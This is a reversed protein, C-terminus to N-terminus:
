VELQGPTYFVREVQEMITSKYAYPISSKMKKVLYEMFYDYAVATHTQKNVATPHKKAAAIEIEKSTRLSRLMYAVAYTLNHNGHMAYWGIIDILSSILMNYGDEGQLRWSDDLNLLKSLDIRLIYDYIAFTRSHKSLFLLKEKITKDIDLELQDYIHVGEIIWGLLLSTNIGMALHYYGYSCTLIKEIAASHGTWCVIKRLIFDNSRGWGRIGGMSGHFPGWLHLRLLDVENRKKILEDIEVKFDNGTTTCKTLNNIKSQYNLRLQDRYKMVLAYEQTDSVFFLSPYHELLEDV